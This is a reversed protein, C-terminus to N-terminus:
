EAPTLRMIDDRLEYDFGHSRAQEEVWECSPYDAYHPYDDHEPQGDFIRADDVLIVHKRGDAFLAELEQVIPTDLKGHATGPGSHHGDLWVLAPGEFSALADPLRETSDGHLCMINPADALRKWAAEYLEDSLEITYLREFNHKLFWPTDGRNTGTEIFTRLNYKAGYERLVMRREDAELFRQITTM